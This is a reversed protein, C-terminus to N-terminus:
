QTGEKFRLAGAIRAHLPDSTMLTMAPHQVRSVKIQGTVPSPSHHIAGYGQCGRGMCVYAEAFIGAGRGSGVQGVCIMTSGCSDCSM